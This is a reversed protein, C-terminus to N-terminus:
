NSVPQRNFASQRLAEPPVNELVHKPLIPIQLDLLAEPYNKKFVFRITHADLVLATDIEAFRARGAYATQPHVATQYTFLVDAATTPQGDSWLVDDRLTFTIAKGDTSTQWARALRPQLNLDADLECLTLMLMEEIVHLADSNATTLELLSDFDSTLGIVVTPTRGRQERETACGLALVLLALLIKFQTKSTMLCFFKGLDFVFFACDLGTSHWSMIAGEVQLDLGKRPVQM